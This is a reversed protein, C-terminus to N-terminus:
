IDALNFLLPNVGLSLLVSEVSRTSLQEGLRAANLRDMGDGACTLSIAFPEVDFIDAKLHGQLWEVRGPFNSENFIRAVNSALMSSGVDLEYVADDIRATVNSGEVTVAEM